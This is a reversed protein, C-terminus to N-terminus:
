PLFYRVLKAATAKVNIGIRQVTRDLKCSWVFCLIVSASAEITSDLPAAAACFGAASSGRLYM